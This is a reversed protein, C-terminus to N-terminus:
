KARTTEKGGWSAEEEARAAAMAGNLRCAICYYQKTSMYYWCRLVREEPLVGVHLAGLPGSHTVPGALLCASSVPGKKSPTATDVLKPLMFGVDSSRSHNCGLTSFPAIFLQTCLV